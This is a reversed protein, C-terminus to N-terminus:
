DTGDGKGTIKDMYEQKPDSPEEQYAITDGGEVADEADRVGEEIATKFEENELKAKDKFMEICDKLAELIDGAEPLVGQDAMSKMPEEVISILYEVEPQTDFRLAIVTKTNQSMVKAM